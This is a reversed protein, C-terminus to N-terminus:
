SRPEAQPAANARHRYKSLVDYVVRRARNIGGLPRHEPLSHWPTYSLNEAFRMQDPTDFEQAPIRVEAVKVLSAPDDPWAVSADEIPTTGPDRYRTVFFDFRVGGARLRDAMALRLRHPDDPPTGTPTADPVAKYKVATDGLRYPTASWYTVALPDAPTKSTAARLVRLEHFRLGLLFHRVLVYAARRSREPRWFLLTGIITPRRARLGAAGLRRNSRVDRAFFAPNDMLVFDQTPKDKEGGVDLLKVAMGHVDGVRDDDTSGNSFRVWAQFTRPVAFVGRALDPPLNTEVAFEARVVGHHKPHQGRRVPSRGKDLLALSLDVIGQIDDAEGPPITETM